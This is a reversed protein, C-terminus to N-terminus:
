WVTWSHNQWNGMSFLIKEILYLRSKATWFPLSKYVGDFQAPAEAQPHNERTDEVLGFTPAPLGPLHNTVDISHEVFRRLSQSEM